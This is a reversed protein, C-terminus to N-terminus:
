AISQLENIAERINEIATEMTDSCDESAEFHESTQLNEPIESRSNDEDDKISELTSACIELKGVADSIQKRRRKNM